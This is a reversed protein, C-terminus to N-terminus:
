GVAGCFFEMRGSRKIFYVPELCTCNGSSEGRRENRQLISIGSELGLIDMKEYTKRTTM